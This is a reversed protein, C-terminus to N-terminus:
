CYLSDKSIGTVIMLHSGLKYTVEENKKLPLNLEPVVSIKYYERDTFKGQNIGRKTIGAELITSKNIEDSTLQASHNVAFSENVQHKGTFGLGYVLTKHNAEYEYLPPNERSLIFEDTLTRHYGTFEM